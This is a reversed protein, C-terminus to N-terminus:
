DRCYSDVEGVALEFEFQARKLRGFEISCDDKGRSNSICSSYAQLARSIDALANNFRDAADGCDFASAPIAFSLSLLILTVGVTRKVGGHSGGTTLRPPRSSVSLRPRTM